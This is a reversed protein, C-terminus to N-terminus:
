SWVLQPEPFIIEMGSFCHPLCSHAQPEWEAPELHDAAVLISADQPSVERNRHRAEPSDQSRPRESSLCHM